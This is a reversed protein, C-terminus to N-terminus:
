RGGTASGRGPPLARARADRLFDDTPSAGSDASPPPAAQARAEAAFSETGALSFTSPATAAVLRAGALRTQVVVKRFEAVSRVDKPAQPIDCFSPYANAADAKAVLDAPMPAPPAAASETPQAASVTGGALAAIGAALVCTTSFHPARRKM